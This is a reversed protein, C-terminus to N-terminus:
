LQGTDLLKKGVEEAEKLIRAVDDEKDRELLVTQSTAMVVDDRSGVAMYAHMHAQKEFEKLLEETTKKEYYSKNIEVNKELQQKAKEIDEDTIKMEVIKRKNPINSRNETM